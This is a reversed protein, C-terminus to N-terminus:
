HCQVPLQYHCDAPPLPDRLGALPDKVTLPLANSVVLIPEQSSSAAPLGLSFFPFDDPSFFLCGHPSFSPCVDPLFLFARPRPLRAALDTVDTSSSTRCTTFCRTCSCHLVRVASACCRESTKCVCSTQLIQSVHLDM